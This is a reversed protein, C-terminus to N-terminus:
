GAAVRHALQAALGHDDFITWVALVRPQEVKAGRDGLEGGVLMAAALARKDEGLEDRPAPDFLLEVGSSRRTGLAIWASSWLAM